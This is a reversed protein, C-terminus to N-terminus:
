KNDSKLAHMEKFYRGTYIIYKGVLYKYFLKIIITIVFQFHFQCSLTINFLNDMDM